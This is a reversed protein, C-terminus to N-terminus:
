KNPLLKPEFTGSVKSKLKVIKSKNDLELGVGQIIGRAERITVAKDTEVKQANPIVHLYETTLTVLGAPERGAATAATEAERNAEVHGSFYAHERDGSIKGREAVVTFAPKDAQTIRIMPNTLETTEDDPFHDGRKAALAERPHGNEDYNVARFNVLFLDPDHRTSGDHRMASPQIQADLWYTLAALGGLLLVPSWSILRDVFARAGTM